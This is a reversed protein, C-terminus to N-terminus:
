PKMGVLVVVYDEGYSTATSQVRGTEIGIAQFAEQLPKGIALSQNNKIQIQVGSLPQERNDQFAPISAYVQYGVGALLDKMAIAFEHARKGDAALYEVAVRGKPAKELLSVFHERQEKTLVWAAQRDQLVANWHKAEHAVARADDLNSQTVALTATLDHEVRQHSAENITAIRQGVKWAAFGCIGGAVPLAVAFFTLWGYWTALSIDALIDALTAWM